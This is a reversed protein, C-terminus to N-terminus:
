PASRRIKPAAGRLVKGNKPLQSGRNTRPAGKPKKGGEADLQRQNEEEDCLRELEDFLEDHDIGPAGNELDNISAMVEKMVHMHYLAQEFPINDDWREVMRLIRQKNTLGDTLIKKNRAMTDAKGAGSEM